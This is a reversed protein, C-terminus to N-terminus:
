RYKSVPCIRLPCSTFKSYLFYPLLYGINSSIMFAVASAWPNSGAEKLPRRLSSAVALARWLAMYLIKICVPQVKVWHPCANPPLHGAVIVYPKWFIAISFSAFRHLCLFPEPPELLYSAEDAPDKIFFVQVFLVVASPCLLRHDLHCQRDSTRGPVPPALPEEM